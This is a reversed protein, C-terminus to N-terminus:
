RPPGARPPTLTFNQKRADDYRRPAAGVRGGWQDQMLLSRSVPSNICNPHKGLVTGPRNCLRQWSMLRFRSELISLIPVDIRFIGLDQSDQNLCCSQLGGPLLRTTSSVINPLGYCQLTLHVGQHYLCLYLPLLIRPQSALIAADAPPEMRSFTLVMPPANQPRNTAESSAQMTTANQYPSSQSVCLGTPMAASM